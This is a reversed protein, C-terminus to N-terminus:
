EGSLEWLNQVAILMCITRLFNLDKIIEYVTYNIIYYYTPIGSKKNFELLVSHDVTM